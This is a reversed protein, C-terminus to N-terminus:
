GNQQEALFIWLELDQQPIEYGMNDFIKKIEKAKLSDIEGSKVLQEYTHIQELIDLPPKVNTDMVYALADASERALPSMKPEIAEDFTIVRIHQKSVTTLVQPSHTTVIFQILPFAERLSPIVMQQWKPHLHLDVEDILVIGKTEKPANHLHPNLKTCRYAIDATMALMSRVGDSLRSVPVTGQKPHNVTIAKFKSNYRINSWQSITLCSNVAERINKLAVSEELSFNTAGNNEQIREILADYEAKSEAIFWDNFAKYTSAHELARNYGWLRSQTETSSSKEKNTFAKSNWLRDTGYFSIIPLHINETSSSRVLNQLKKAHNKINKADKVTTKSGKRNNTLARKWIFNDEEFLAETTVTVPYTSEMEKVITNSDTDVIKLRADSRKFGKNIGSDFGGVFPSLAVAIADLVSTKGVGNEAVIVTMNENFDITFNDFSRYNELTIKKLKM